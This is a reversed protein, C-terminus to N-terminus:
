KVENSKCTIYEYGSEPHYRLIYGNITRTCEGKWYKDPNYWTTTDILVSESDKPVPLPHRDDKGIRCKEYTSLVSLCFLAHDLHSLGSEPDRDEGNMHSTLHRLAAGYMRSWDMGKTWNYADYKREGFELVQALGQMAPIPILHM